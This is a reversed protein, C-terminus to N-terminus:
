RSSPGSQDVDPIAVVNGDRDYGPIAGYVPSSYISSANSHTAQKAKKAFAPSTLMAVAAFISLVLKANLSKM